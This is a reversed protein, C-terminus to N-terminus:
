NAMPLIVFLFRRATNPVKIASFARDLDEIQNRLGEGGFLLLKSQPSWAVLDAFVQSLQDLARCTVANIDSPPVDQFRKSIVQARDPRGITRLAERLFVAKKQSSEILVARLDPRAILNPIIPLGAGAGIDAVFDGTDLHPLLMLSELVHRIAFESPSCPAVLHLRPNWTLLLAYYDTLLSIAPETLSLNFSDANALLADQFQDLGTAM